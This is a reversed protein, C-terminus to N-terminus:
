PQGPDSRAAPLNGLAHAFAISNGDPDKIMVTEIRATRSPEPSAVGAAELEAVQEDIDTVAVTFSGRGARDALEYVQLGGGNPFHWEAVDGMPRSTAPGFIREYWELAPELRRVAVSAFVNTLM